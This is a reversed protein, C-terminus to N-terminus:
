SKGIEKWRKSYERRRYQCVKKENATYMNTRIKGEKLRKTRYKGTNRTRTRKIRKKAAEQKVREMPINRKEWKCIRKIELM